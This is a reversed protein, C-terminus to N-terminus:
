EDDAEAEIRDMWQTMLYVYSSREMMGANILYWSARIEAARKLVAEELAFQMRESYKDLLAKQEASLELKVTIM